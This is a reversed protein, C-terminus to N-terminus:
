AAKMQNPSGGEVEIDVKKAGLAVPEPIRVELMGNAYKAHVKAADVGEPLTFAREFAGYELERVFYSEGKNEARHQRQGKITLENGMVSVEVQKPDVGPLAVRIVYEGNELGGEVAPTWTPRAGTGAGQTVPGFFRGFVDDIERRLQFPSTYPSWRVLGFM